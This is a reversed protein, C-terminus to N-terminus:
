HGGDDGHVAWCWARRAWRRVAALIGRDGKETTVYGLEGPVLIPRDPDALAESIAVAEERTLPERIQNILPQRPEITVPKSIVVDYTGTEMRETFDALMGHHPCAANAMWETTRDDWPNYDESRWCRCGKSGYPQSM